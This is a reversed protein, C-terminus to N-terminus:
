WLWEAIRENIISLFCFMIYKEFLKDWIHGASLTLIKACPFTDSIRLHHGNWINKKRLTLQCTSFIDFSILQFKNRFPRSDIWEGQWNASASFRKVQYIASPFKEMSRYWIINVCQSCKSTRWWSWRTMIKM